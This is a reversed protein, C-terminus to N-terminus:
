RPSFFRVVASTIQLKKSPCRGLDRQDPFTAMWTRSENKAERKPSLSMLGHDSMGHYGGEFKVIKPRKRYARALRMAYLDAESGSSVFRVQEVCPMADVIAAALRIGHENNAFFTTGLPVQALVAETVKPHNHGIYM